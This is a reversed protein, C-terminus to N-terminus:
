IKQQKVTSQQIPCGLQESMLPVLPLHAFWFFKLRATVSYCRWIRMNTSATCYERMLQLATMGAEAAQLDPFALVNLESGGEIM